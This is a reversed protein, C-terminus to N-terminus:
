RQMIGETWSYMEVLTLYILIPALCIYGMIWRGAGSTVKMVDFKSSSIDGFHM